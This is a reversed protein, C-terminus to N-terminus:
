FLRATLKKRWGATRPDEAGMLELIDLFQQRAAEDAKVSDLLGALQDDFDDAPRMSMRAAAAAKRVEDTEPVRALLALADEGQGRATLIGALAVIAAENGPDIGLVAQLSEEDGKALLDAIVEDQASPLLMDVYQKVVHEPQAGQFMPMARGDAVAFVAPISQVRFAQAIGPNEDINVKALVVKGNTAAVVREIIPGLTKCPECWPAWLDVVVPVTMSRALVDNEFSADTVDIYMHPVNDPSEIDFRTRRPTGYAGHGVCGTDSDVRDGIPQLAVDGSCLARKPEVHDGSSMRVQGIADGGGVSVTENETPWREAVHQGTRVVHSALMSDDM